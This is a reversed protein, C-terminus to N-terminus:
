RIWLAAAIRDESRTADLGLERKRDRTTNRSLVIKRGALRISGAHVLNKMEISVTERTTGILSAVDAQTLRVDILTEGALAVGHFAALREFLALLRDSVRARAIDELAALADDRQEKFRLALNVAIAPDRSMLEHVDRVCIAWLRCREICTASTTRIADGMAAEAGFLDSEGIIASTVLEGDKSNHRIRIAGRDILYVLAAPDGEDFIVAKRAYTRPTLASGINDIVDRRAGTFLRNQLYPMSPPWESPTAEDGDGLHHPPSCLARVANRARQANADLRREVSAEISTARGSV